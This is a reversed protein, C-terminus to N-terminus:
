GGGALTVIELSDNAQLQQRAFQDSPQVVENLEVAIAKSRINLQVLLDAISSSEQTSIPEGNVLILITNM